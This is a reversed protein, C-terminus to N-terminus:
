ALTEKPKLSLFHLLLFKKKQKLFLLYFLKKAL